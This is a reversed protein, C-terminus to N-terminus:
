KQYKLLLETHDIDCPSFDKKMIRLYPIVTKTIIGNKLNFLFSCADKLTAWRWLQNDQKLLIITGKFIKLFVSFTIILSYTRKLLIKNNITNLLKHAIAKHEIEEIAHWTWIRRFHPHMQELMEPHTLYFEAFVFTLHELCLTVLLMDKKNKLKAIQQDSLKELFDIPYGKTELWKDFQRHVGRHMSEQLIFQEVQEKLQSDNIENKFKNVTDIFFKEGHFFRTSLSNMFHTKFPSNDFWYLPLEQSWDLKLNFAEFTM